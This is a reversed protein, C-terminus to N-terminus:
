VPMMYLAICVDHITSYLSRTYYQALVKYLVKDAAENM